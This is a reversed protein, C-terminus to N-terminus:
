LAVEKTTKSYCNWIFYCEEPVLKAAATRARAQYVKSGTAASSNNNNDVIIM